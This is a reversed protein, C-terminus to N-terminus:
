DNAGQFMFWKMDSGYYSFKSKINDAYEKAEAYNPDSPTLPAAGNEAWEAYHRNLPYQPTAAM